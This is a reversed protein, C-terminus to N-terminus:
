EEVYGAERQHRVAHVVVEDRAEDFAYLAVYGTRGRSIVLERLGHGVSRGIFPHDRLARLAGEILSLAEVWWGGM